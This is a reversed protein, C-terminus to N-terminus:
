GQPVVERWVSWLHLARLRQARSQRGGPGQLLRKNHGQVSEDQSRYCSFSNYDVALTLQVTMYKGDEGPKLAKYAAQLRKHLGTERMYCGLPFGACLGTM